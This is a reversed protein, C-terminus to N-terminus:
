NERDTIYLRIPSVPAPQGHLTLDVCAGTKRDAAMKKRKQRVKGLVYRSNSTSSLLERFAVIAAARIGQNKVRSLLRGGLLQEANDDGVM